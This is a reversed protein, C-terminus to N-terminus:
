GKPSPYDKCGMQMGEPIEADLTTHCPRMTSLAWAESHNSGTWVPQIVSAAQVRPKPALLVHHNLAHAKSNSPHSNLDWSQHHFYELRLQPQMVRHIYKFVM